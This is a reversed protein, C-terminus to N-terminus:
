TPVYLVLVFTSLALLTALIGNLSEEFTYAYGLSVDDTIILLSRIKSKEPLIKAPRISM